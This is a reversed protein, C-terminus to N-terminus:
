NLCRNLSHNDNGLKSVISECNNLFRRYGVSFLKHGPDRKLYTTHSLDLYSRAIATPSMQDSLQHIVNVIDNMAASNVFTLLEQVRREHLKVAYSLYTNIEKLIDARAVQDRVNQLDQPHDDAPALKDDPVLEEVAPQAVTSFFTLGYYGKHYPQLKSKVSEAMEDPFASVVATVFDNNDALHNVQSVFDLKKHEPLLAMLTLVMEKNSVLYQNEVIAMYKDAIDLQKVYECLVQPDRSGNELLSKLFILQRKRDLLNLYENIEVSMKILHQYDLLLRLRKSEPACRALGFLDEEAQIFHRHYKVLNMFNEEDSICEMVRIFHSGSDVAENHSMLIIYRKAETRTQLDKVLKDIPSEVDDEKGKDDLQDRLM